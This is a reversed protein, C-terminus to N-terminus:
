RRRRALVIVAAIAVAVVAVVVIGATLASVGGGSPAPAETKPAPTANAELTLNEWTVNGSTATATLQETAFGSASAVVAYSGPIVSDNFIGGELAQVVGGISVQADGPVVTGVIFTSRYSFAVTVPAAIGASVRITGENPSALFEYVSGVEYPSSGNPAAVQLTVGTGQVQSGSVNVWWPTSAPLGTETFSVEYTFPAFRLAVESTGPLSLTAPSEGVLYYGAVPAYTVSYTGNPLWDSLMTGETTLATGNVTAGWSTGLPLGTESFDVEGANELDVYVTAGASIEFEGAGNTFNRLYLSHPGIPLTVNAWTGQFPISLGDVLLTNPGRTPVSLNLFGVESLNYLVGLTGPGSTLRGGPLDTAVDTVNSSTEGTNSGFNWATPVAQYNHGNWQSLTLNIDSGQDTSASGGGAGVWVWEADYYLDAAYPTPAFGDVRFGSDTANALHAFSVNDYTVWGAGLDYEYAVYPIGASTSTVIRGTLTAPLSLTTCQGAYTPGCGPIFYYTDSALTSGPDGKLEGSSLTAGPSSFNWVYAGGITFVDSGADLHLGNQIWYTYDSGNRQLVVVANLEFATVKSSTGSITVSLSRVLAQGQFSDTSYEYATGDPTPGTVGFDAIGMPAPERTYFEVPNVISPHPPQNPAGAASRDKPAPGPSTPTSPGLSDTRILAGAVEPGRDSSSLIPESVGPALTGSGVHIVASAPLLLLGVLGVIVVLGLTAGRSQPFRV